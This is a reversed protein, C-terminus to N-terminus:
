SKLSFDKIYKEIPNMRKSINPINLEKDKEPNKLRGTL